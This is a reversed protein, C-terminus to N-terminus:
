TASPESFAEGRNASMLGGDLMMALSHWNRPHSTAKHHPRGNGGDRVALTFASTFNLAPYADNFWHILVWEGGHVDDIDIMAGVGNCRFHLVISAGSYGPNRPEERRETVTAGHDRAMAELTDAIQTRDAKRSARLSNFVNRNIEMTRGRKKPEIFQRHGVREVREPWRALDLYTRHGQM